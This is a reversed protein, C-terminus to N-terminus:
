LIFEGRQNTQTRAVDNAKVTVYPIPMNQDDVTEQIKINKASLTTLWAFLISALVLMKKNLKRM